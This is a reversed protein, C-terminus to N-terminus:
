IHFKCLFQNVCANQEIEKYETNSPM